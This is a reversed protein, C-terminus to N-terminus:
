IGPWRPLSWDPQKKMTRDVSRLWDAKSDQFLAGSSYGGLLLYVKTMLFYRRFGEIKISPPLRGKKLNVLHATDMSKVLVM